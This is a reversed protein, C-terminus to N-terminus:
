KQMRLSERVNAGVPRASDVRDHGDQGIPPLSEDYHPGGSTSVNISKATIRGFLQASGGFTFDTVPAYLEGICRHTRTWTATTCAPLFYLKRNAPVNGYTDIVV